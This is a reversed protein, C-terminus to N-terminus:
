GAIRMLEDMLQEAVSVVRANAAYMQEIRLLHQLEADTDVGGALEATQLATHQASARSLSMEATSRGLGALSLNDSILSSMSRQTTSFAASGTTRTAALADIQATLFTANGTPGEATAGIGDRLRWVAGGESPVVASNVSLRAALGEENAVDVLSGADTFLGPTGAVISPDLGAADFREALDVAIGDLRAQAEPGLTDRVDFLASLQGGEFASNTGEMRLPRGDISLGSLTGNSLALHPDMGNAPTFGLKAARHSLLVQGDDSYINLTGNNDRRTQIPIMPAIQDILQSQADVLSAAEGSNAGISLIRVNLEALGELASNVQGISRGIKTDANQREDQINSSLTNLTDAFATAGQVAASLHASNWPANAASVLKGEFDAMQASLSGPQDPAGIMQELRAMFDATTQNSGLNASASRRQGILVTDEFRTVGNIRVGSGDHGLTRSSLDVSRTGYGETLANAINSSVVDAARSSATLGSLASSLTSSISM